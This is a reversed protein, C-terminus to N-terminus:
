RWRRHALDIQQRLERRAQQLNEKAQFFAAETLELDGSMLLKELAEVVRLVKGELMETTTGYFREPVFYLLILLFLYSTIFVTSVLRASQSALAMFLIWGLLVALTMVQWRAIPRAMAIGRLQPELQIFAKTRAFWENFKYCQQLNVRAQDFKALNLAYDRCTETLQYFEPRTLETPSIANSRGTLQDFTEKIPM